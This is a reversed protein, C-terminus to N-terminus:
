APVGGIREHHFLRGAPVARRRLVPLPGVVAHRALSRGGALGGVPWAGWSPGDMPATARWLDTNQHLVWGRAGWHKRAVPRGAEAVEQVLKLLPEFTEPLNGVDAPWYNMPLNINVTYKSDWSPNPDENWIGQLNAPETGPRSSSILLYRGFQYYLAALQPDAGIRFRAVREDTPLRAAASSGLDLAVRRFLRRHETVHEVRIRDYPKDVVAAMDREVRAVPNGSVDRYNV